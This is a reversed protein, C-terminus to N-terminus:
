KNRKVEFGMTNFMEEVSVCRIRNEYSRWLSLTEDAYEYVESEPLVNFLLSTMEALNAGEVHSCYLREDHACINRFGNLVVCSRRLTVQSLTGVRKSPRKSAKAVIGCVKERDSPLMLQYFNSINGFTLDNVLVWLPVKGYTTMYHRIFDRTHERVILKSNLISMLASLNRSHLTQKDGRFARAVLYDNATCFNNRDLYAGDSRHADSFAYAVATRVAAEARVLYKFTISRLERDFLFLSYIWDFETDRQFVDGNSHQMADTDLFPDKYGNIIAYYSERQIAEKTKEDTRVGRSNLLAVLENLDKFDKAM